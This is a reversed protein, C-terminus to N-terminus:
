VILVSNGRALFNVVVVTRDTAPPRELAEARDNQSFFGAGDFQAFLQEPLVFM